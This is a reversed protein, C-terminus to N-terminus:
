RIPKLPHDGKYNAGEGYTKDTGVRAYEATRKDASVRIRDLVTTALHPVFPQIVISAIRVVESATQIMCMRSTEDVNKSWPESDQIYQNTLQLLDWVEALARSTTFNAMHGSVRDLLSNSQSIIQRYKEVYEPPYNQEFHSSADVSLSQQINFKPGCLRTVLNGYKNCLESNHRSIIRDQSYVSDHDIAGDNLLFFRMSDMGIWEVLQFPDVVNGLSKSMKAGDLTWHAHVLLTKNVPLDAAMLFAPWYVAHFRVIDKGVIQVDPPWISNDQASKNAWPYGASALYNVLADFWVYMVQTEDGPVTVGWSNRSKPRSISLDELPNEDLERLVTRQWVQPVIAGPTQQLREVLQKRFKSLSFFYNVESIWEVEKGTEKSFVGDETKVVQNEPYFTEDSICYWGSHEGKYIYGKDMLTNWLAKAAQVNDNDTTRIFRDHSLGAADALKEFVKSANDVFEQPDSVGAKTAAQQVKLGHEDTGTTLYGPTQYRFVNWRKVADALVMTYLHGIHPNANVYFIPTTVFTSKHRRGFARQGIPWIRRFPRMTFYLSRSIKVEHKIVRPCTPTYILLWNM